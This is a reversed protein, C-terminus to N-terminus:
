GKARATRSGLKILLAAVILVSGVFVIYWGTDVYAITKFQGIVGEGLIPPTFPQISSSLPAYPDLNQGYHTMWFALDALFVFPFTLAPITLLWTWGRQWVAAIGLFIVMLIVAPIAISREFKAAEYLSKMGIYHNLGDIERVEDLKPDDDGTMNNVFVRMQLGGPYQPAQLVLGWYPVGISIILLVAAILFFVQPLRKSWRVSGTPAASQPATSDTPSIANTTM